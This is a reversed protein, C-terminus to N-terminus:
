KENSRARQCGPALRWQFNSQRVPWVSFIPIRKKNLSIEYHPHFFVRHEISSIIISHLKISLMFWIHMDFFKFKCMACRSYLLCATINSVPWKRIFYVITNYKNADIEIVFHDLYRTVHRDGASFDNVLYAIYNCLFFLFSIQIFIIFLLPRTFKGNSSSRFMFKRVDFILM